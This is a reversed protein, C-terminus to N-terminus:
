TDFDAIVDGDADGEGSSFIMQHTKGVGVFSM